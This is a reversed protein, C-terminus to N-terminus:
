IDKQLAAPTRAGSADGKHHCTCVAERPKLNHDKGPGPHSSVVELKSLTPSSLSIRHHGVGFEPVWSGINSPMMALDTRAPTCAHLSTNPSVTKPSCCSTSWQICQSLPLQRVALYQLPFTDLDAYGIHLPTPM